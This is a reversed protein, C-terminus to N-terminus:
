ISVDLCYLRNRHHTILFMHCVASNYRLKSAMECSIKMLLCPLYNRPFHSPHDCAQYLGAATLPDATKKLNRVLVLSGDANDGMVQTQVNSKSLQMINSSICVCWIFPARSSIKQPFQSLLM